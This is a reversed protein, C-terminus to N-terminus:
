PLKLGGIVLSTVASYTINVRQNSDNFQKQNFPGVYKYVTGTGPIVVADDHYFGQSCQNPSDFTVTIDGGSGNYLYIVTKGDNVFYDGGSECAQTAINVGDKSADTLTIEAM